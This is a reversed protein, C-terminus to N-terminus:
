RYEPGAPRPTTTANRNNNKNPRQMREREDCTCLSMENGMKYKKKKPDEGMFVCWIINKSEPSSPLFPTLSRLTPPRAQRWKAQNRIQANPRARRVGSKRAATFRHSARRERACQAWFRGRFPLQLPRSAVVLTLLLSQCRTAQNLIQANHRTRRAESKRGATSRHPTRRQRARQAWFRGRFPIIPAPQASGCTPAAPGDVSCRRREACTPSRCRRSARRSRAQYTFAGTTFFHLNLLPHSTPQLHFLPSLPPARRPLSTCSMPSLPPLLLYHPPPSLNHLAHPHTSRRDM